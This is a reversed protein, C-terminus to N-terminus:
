DIALAGGAAFYPAEFRKNEESISLNPQPQDGSSPRNQEFPVGPGDIGDRM